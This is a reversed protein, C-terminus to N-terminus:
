RFGGQGGFPTGRGKKKGVVLLKRNSFKPEEIKKEEEAGGHKKCKEKKIKMKKGGIGSGGGRIFGRKGDSLRVEERDGKREVM